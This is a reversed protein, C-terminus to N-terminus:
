KEKNNENRPFYTQLFATIDLQNLKLVFQEMESSKNIFTQSLIQSMQTKFLPKTQMLNKLYTFQANSLKHLNQALFETTKEQYNAPM